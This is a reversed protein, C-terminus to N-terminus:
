LIGALERMRRLTFYATVSTLKLASESLVYQYRKFGRDDHKLFRDLESSDTFTKFSKGPEKKDYVSVKHGLSVLRKWIKFGEDSLSDDSMFRISKDSDKLIEAYLDSAFPSKGKLRPNKGTNSIVLGEPRKRLESGLLIENEHHYWYIVVDGSTIKNLTPSLQNPTIGAKLFDKITYELTDFTEFTGLGEPMELLWTKEFTTRTDTFLKTNM